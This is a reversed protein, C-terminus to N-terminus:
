RHALSGHQPAESTREPIRVRLSVVTGRGPPVSIHLEGGLGEAREAMGALGFSHQDSLKSAPIGIGDDEIDLAVEDGTRVARV